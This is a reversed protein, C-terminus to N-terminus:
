NSLTPQPADHSFCFSESPTEVRLGCSKEVLICWWGWLTMGDDTLCQHLVNNGLGGYGIKKVKVKKVKVKVKARLQNQIVYKSM